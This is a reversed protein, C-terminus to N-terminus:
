EMQPVQGETGDSTSGKSSNGDVGLTSAGVERSISLEPVVGRHISASRGDTNTGRVHAGVAVYRQVANTVRHTVPLVCSRNVESDESGLVTSCM